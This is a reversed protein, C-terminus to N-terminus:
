HQVVFKRTLIEQDTRIKLLYTGPSITPLNLTLQKEKVNEFNKSILISGSMNLVEVGVYRSLYDLELELSFNGKNPNPFINVHQALNPEPKVSSIIGPVSLDSTNGIHLRIVPVIGLGFGIFDFTGTNNLDFVSAYRNQNLSDSIFTTAQYNFQDSAMFSCRANNSSGIYQVAVIYYTNDELPIGAGEFDVPLTIYGDEDNLDSFAYTNVGLTDQILNYEGPEAFDNNNLDEWKYLFTSIEANSDALEAANAIGITIWRAYKGTGNPVFFCNGYTFNLSESSTINRTPGLEKAFTSDSIEFNWSIVNNEMREEVSDQTLTYRGTYAGTRSVLNDNLQNEFIINEILEESNVVEFHLQDSFITEGTDEHNLSLDLEVGNAEQCGINTFDALFAVDGVQGFPTMANPLIAYFNQNLRLDYHPRQAVVVDDIAWFFLDGAWTFKLQLTEADSLEAPLPIITREQDIPDSNSFKPFISPSADIPMSWNGDEDARWSISNILRAGQDSIPAIPSANGKKVLQSFQLELLKDTCPLDITPSILESRYYHFLDNLLMEIDGESTLYDANFVMAGDVGTPSQIVTGTQAFLAPGVDGGEVWEWVAEPENNQNNTTWGEMGFGFRESWCTTQPISPDENSLIVDDISWSLEQVSDWYWQLAMTNAGDLYPSLDLNVRYANNSISVPIWLGPFVKFTITDTPTIVQLKANDEPNKNQTAIHTYFELFVKEQGSIDINPTRLIGRHPHSWSFSDYYIYGNDTSPSQLTGFGLDQNSPGYVNPPCTQPDDCYFWLPPGAGLDENLWSVPIGNSFDESWFVQCFTSSTGIVLFLCVLTILTYCPKMAKRNQDYFILSEDWSQKM